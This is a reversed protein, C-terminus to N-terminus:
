ELHILAAYVKEYVFYRSLLGHLRKMGTNPLQTIIDTVERDLADDTLNAYTDTVSLGYESLRREVTRSSIGLMTAITPINFGEDLFFFLQEQPVHFIPRGPKGSFIKPSQFSVNDSESIPRSGQCRPNYWANHAPHVDVAEELLRIALRINEVVETPIPSNVALYVVEEEIDLLQDVVTIFQYTETYLDLRRAVDRLQQSLSTTM